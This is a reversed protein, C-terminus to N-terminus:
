IHFSSLIMNIDSSLTPHGAQNNQGQHQNNQVEDINSYIHNIVAHTMTIFNICNNIDSGEDLFSLFDFEYFVHVDTTGTCQSDCILNCDGSNRNQSPVINKIGNTTIGSGCDIVSDFEETLKSLYRNAIDPHNKIVKVEKQKNQILIHLQDEIVSIIVSSYQQGDISGFYHVGADNYFYQGSQTTVKIGENPVIQRKTAQLLISGNITPVLIQINDYTGNQLKNLWNNRVRYIEEGEDLGVNDANAKIFLPVTQFNQSYSITSNLILFFFASLVHLINM